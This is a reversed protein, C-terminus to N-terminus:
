RAVIGMRMRQRAVRRCHIIQDMVSIIVRLAVVRQWMVVQVVQRVVIFQARMRLRQPREAKVAMM